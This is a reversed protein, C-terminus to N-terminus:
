ITKSISFFFIIVPRFEHDNWFFIESIYRKPTKHLVGLNPASLAAGVGMIKM